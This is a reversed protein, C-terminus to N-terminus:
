AARRQGTPKFGLDIGRAKAIQKAMGVFYAGGSRGRILGDREAEKFLGILQWAVGEGLAEAILHFTRVSVPKHDHCAAAITEALYAVRDPSLPSAKSSQSTKSAMTGLMSKLSSFDGEKRPSGEVNVNKNLSHIQNTHRSGTDPNPSVPRHSPETVTPRHSAKKVYAPSGAMRPTTAVSAQADGFIQFGTVPLIHYVNNAWRGGNATNLRAKHVTIIPRGQFRYELLERVRKNVTERTTGLDTAIRAQSPYCMGREDMYTVLACLTRWRRDGIDALLGSDRADFYMKLFMRREPQATPVDVETQFEVSLLRKPLRNDSEQPM